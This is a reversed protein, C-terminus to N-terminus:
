YGKLEKLTRGFAKSTKLECTWGLNTKCYDWVMSTAKDTLTLYEELQEERVQYYVADHLNYIYPKADLGAEKVLDAIFMGFMMNLDHGGGQVCNSVVMSTNGYVVFRHGDEVNLLDYM